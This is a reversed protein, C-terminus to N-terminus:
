SFAGENQAKAEEHHKPLGSLGKYHTNMNWHQLPVFGAGRVRLLTLHTLEIIFFIQINKFIEFKLQVQIM